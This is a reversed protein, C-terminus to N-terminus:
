GAPSQGETIGSGLQGSTHDFFRRLKSKDEPLRIAGTEVQITTTIGYASLEQALRRALAAELGQGEPADVLLRLRNDPELFAQFDRISDSTTIIWRSMLDPFVPRLRGHSDPFRFVEDDRGQVQGLVRFASGCSCPQGLSVLDNMRYRILPQTHNVLNTVLM